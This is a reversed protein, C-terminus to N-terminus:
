RDGATCLSAHSENEIGRAQYARKAPKTRRLWIKDKRYGSAIYPIVRRMNIRKGTRYDGQLKTAVMPELVLRLQECLRQSLPATLSRLRGWRETGLGRDGGGGAAGWDVTLRHLEEHLVDEDLMSAAVADGVAVSRGALAGAIDTVVRSRECALATELLAEDDDVEMVAAEAVAAAEAAASEEEGDEEEGLVQPRQCADPVRRPAAVRKIAEDTPPEPPALQGDDEADSEESPAAAAAGAAEAGGDKGDGDPPPAPLAAADEEAVGGLVQQQEKSTDEGTAYEFTGRGMRHDGADDAGGDDGEAGADEEEPSLEGAEQRRLLDLRRHWHEMADGPSRLPNPAEPRRREPRSQPHEGGGGGDRDRRWEGAASVSTASAAAGMVAGDNADYGGDDEGNDMADPASEEKADLIASDGGEARVGFTPTTAAMPPPEVPPADEAEADGGGETIADDKGDDPADDPADGVDAGEGGDDDDGGEGGDLEMNDPLEDDGGVDSGAAEALEAGAGEAGDSQDEEGGGGGPEGGGGRADDEVDCDGGDENEKNKKGDEGQKEGEQEGDEQQEDKEEIGKEEARVDVGAPKDEYADELDDNIPHDEKRGGEEDGGEKDEVAAGVADQQKGDTGGAEEKKEREEKKEGAGQEEGDERTRIEDTLKEGDLRSGKEFKEEVGGGGDEGDKEDEDDSNWIREDVVDADDGAEGMERDLEEAGDNSDDGEDGKNKQPEEPVDFLDGDFDNSMELGADKEDDGLPPPPQQKGPDDDGPMNPQDGELGLLQEEDEIEGSVDKLGEGEGMGTGDLPEDLTSKGGGGGDDDGGDKVEDTCLGKSLLTRFVRTCVYHLKTTGKNLAVLGHLQTDAAAEVQAALNLLDKIMGGFTRSAAALSHVAGDGGDGGDGVDANGANATVASAEEYFARAVMAVTALAQSCRTLKMRHARLLAGQHLSLVTDNDEGATAGHGSGGEGGNDGGNDARKFGDNSDAATPAAKSFAQTAILFAKVAGEVAAAVLPAHREAVARGVAESTGQGAAVAAASAAVPGSEGSSGGAAGGELSICACIPGDAAADVAAELATLHRVLVLIAAPPFVGGCEAAIAELEAASTAIDQRGADLAAAVPQGLLGAVGGAAGGDGAPLVDTLCRLASALRCEVGRLRMRISAVKFSMAAASPPEWQERGGSDANSGRGSVVAPLPTDALTRALLLLQRVSEIAGFLGVRQVAAAAWLAEQPPLLARRDDGAAAMAAADAQWLASLPRLAGMAAALAATEMTLVALAARQQLALVHMHEALAAMTLAERRSVDASVPASAELRLRTQEAMGAYFYREARAWMAAWAAAAASGAGGATAAGAAAVIDTGGLTAALFPAPLAMVAPVDKALPPVASAFASLGHNRLAGLMDLVARRKMQKGANCGRLSDIRAFVATCLEECLESGAFGSGGSGGPTYAAARLLRQMKQALSLMRPALVITAALKGATMKGLLAAMLWSPEDAGGEAVAAKGFVDAFPGLRRSSALEAVLAVRLLDLSNQEAPTVAGTRAAAAKRAKRAATAATAAAKRKGATTSGGSVGAGNEAQGDGDEARGADDDDADDAGTNFDAPTDVKPVLRFIAPLLPVETATAEGRQGVGAVAVKQLVHAVSSELADDYERLLKSLQRHSKEASEALAYYTQGDWRGLKAAEKLRREVSGRVADRAARVDDSYQQYYRWLSFMVYAMTGDAADREAAGDGGAEAAPACDATAASGGGCLLQASFARVLELRAPFEGVASTRLFDDLLSLLERAGEPLGDPCGADAAGGARGAGTGGPPSAWATGCRLWTPFVSQAPDAAADASAAAAASAVGVGVPGVGVEEAAGGLAADAAGAGSGDAWPRTLLGHLRLWWR